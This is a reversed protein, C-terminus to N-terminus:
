FMILGKKGYFWRSDRREHVKSSDLDKRDRICSILVRVDDDDLQLLFDLPEATNLLQRVIHVLSESAM